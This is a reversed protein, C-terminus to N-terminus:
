LLAALAAVRAADTNGISIALDPLLYDETLGVVTRGPMQRAVHAVVGSLVGAFLVVPQPAAQVAGALDQVAAPAYSTVPLAAFALPATDLRAPDSVLLVRSHDRCLDLLREAADAEAVARGAVYALGPRRDFAADPIMEADAVDGYHWPLAAPPTVADLDEGILVLFPPDASDWRTFSCAGFSWNVALPVASDVFGAVGKLRLVGPPLVALFDQFERKRYAGGPRIVRSHLAGHGHGPPMMDVPGLSALIDGQVAGDFAHWVPVPGRAARLFREAAVIDAPAAGDCKALVFANAAAIQLGFVAHRRCTELNVPDVLCVVGEVHFGETELAEQVPAADGVGSGEVVLLDPALEQRIRQLAAEMDGGASCCFCGGAVEVVELGARRLLPGDFGIAGFDNVLVAFRRGALAPLLATAIFTTKGSGLFGTVLIASVTM